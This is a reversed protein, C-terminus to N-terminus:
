NLKWVSLSLISTGKWGVILCKGKVDLTCSHECSFKKLILKAQYLSSSSLEVDKFGYRTLFAKWVDITVHRIKRQKGESAVMNKIGTGFYLSECVMRNEDDRKMFTEFCDFYAGYFFLAEIFRNVFAPSNHNAEVETVVMVCPNLNRVVKMLSELQDPESLFSRLLYSSYVAVKEDSDLEFHDEKLHSMDSVMVIEFSLPINISKAFRLLREGTEEIAHKFTTGIATIKLLELPSEHSSSALAQMLVIWQSGSRIGLDIIHIKKAEMVNEIIAQIGSFICLQSFPIEEHMAHHTTNLTMMAKDPDFQDVTQLSLVIHRGTEKDIRERLAQCFYYVVRQIPNGEVSSLLECQNLLKSGREFQQCEVREACSLLLEVLEVDRTEEISLGYFSFEFPHGFMMSPVHDATQQSNFCQIFRTGAIRLIDDTSLKKEESSPADYSPEEMVREGNMKKLGSSYNRLIEFSALSNPCEEEKTEVNSVLAPIENFRAIEELCIELSPSDVTERTDNLLEYDSIQEEPLEMLQNKSFLFGESLFHDDQVCGFDSSSLYNEIDRSDEWTEGGFFHFQYKNDNVEDM